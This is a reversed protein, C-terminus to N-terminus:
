FDSLWKDGKCHICKSADQIELGLKSDGPVILEQGWQLGGLTDLAMHVKATVTDFWIIAQKEEVSKM